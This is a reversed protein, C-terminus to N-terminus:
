PYDAQMNPNIQCTLIMESGITLQCVTSIADGAVVAEQVLADVGETVIADQDFVLGWLM